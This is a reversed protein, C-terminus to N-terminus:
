EESKALIKLASQERQMSPLMDRSEDTLLGDFAKEDDLALKTLAPSTVPYASYTRSVSVVRQVKPTTIFEGPLAVKRPARWVAIGAAVLVVAAAAMPQWWLNGTRQRMELPRVARLQFKKLYREVGAQQDNEQMTEEGNRKKIM